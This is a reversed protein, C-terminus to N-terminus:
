IEFRPPRVLTCTCSFGNPSYGRFLSGRACFNINLGLIPDDHLRLWRGMLWFPQAEFDVFPWVLRWGQGTQTKSQEAGSTVPEARVFLCVFSCAASLVRAHLRGLQLDQGQVRFPAAAGQRQPQPPAVGRLQGQPAPLPAGVAKEYKRVQEASESKCDRSPRCSYSTKHVIKAHNQCSMFFLNTKCTKRSRKKAHNQMIKVHRTSCSTKRPKAHNQKNQFSKVNNKAHNHKSPVSAAGQAVGRQSAPSTSISPFANNKSSRNQVSTVNIKQMTKSAQFKRHSPSLVKFTPLLTGHSICSTM